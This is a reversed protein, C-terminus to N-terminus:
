SDTRPDPHVLPPDPDFASHRPEFRLLRRARTTDVLGARGRVEGRLPVEPAYHQLLWATDEERYTDDAALGIVHAGTVPAVLAHLIARAADRRDLYSWGERIQRHRHPSALGQVHSPLGVLPFRLAVVTMDWRSAAMEATLEDSRKSLSYWDDLAHPVDEDLPFYAPLLDRRNAPVGLANISSAIVVRRVGHLGAQQLVNFTSDTNTRYGDYPEGIDEGPIAAMHVVADADALAGAVDPPVTTDGTVTRDSRPRRHWDKSMATVAVDHHLLLDCADGGITGGAGTVLVRAPLRGLHDPEEADWDIGRADRTM